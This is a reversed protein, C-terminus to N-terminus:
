VDYKDIQPLCWVHRSCNGWDRQTDTSASGLRWDDKFRYPITTRRNGGIFCPIFLARGLVNTVPCIFLCPLRPNSASDDLM